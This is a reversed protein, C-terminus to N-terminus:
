FRAAGLYSLKNRIIAIAASDNNITEITNSIDNYYNRIITEKTKFVKISDIQDSIVFQMMKIQESLEKNNQGIADLYKSDGSPKLANYILLALIIGVLVRLLYDKNM